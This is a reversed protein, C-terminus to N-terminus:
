PSASQLVSCCVAVCQLVSCSVAGCQVVSCRMLVRHLVSCCVAVCQLVSCWVAGCQVANCCVAVCQLVRSVQSVRSGALAPGYVRPACGCPAAFGGDSSGACHVHECAGVASLYALCTLLSRYTDFSVWFSVFSVFSFLLDVMAQALAICMNM